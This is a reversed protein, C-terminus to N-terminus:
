NLQFANLRGEKLSFRMLLDDRGDKFSLKWVYTDQGHQRITGFYVADYGDKLPDGVKKTLDAIVDATFADKFRDGGLEVFTEYNDTALGNVLKEFVEKSPAPPDEARVPLVLFLTLAFLFSVFHKM